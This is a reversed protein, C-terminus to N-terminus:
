EDISTWNNLETESQDVARRCRIGINNILIKGEEAEITYLGDIQKIVKM